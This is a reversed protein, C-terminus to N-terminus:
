CSGCVEHSYRLPNTAHNDLVFYRPQWTIGRVFVKTFGRPKKLLVGKYGESSDPYGDVRKRCEDVLMEHPTKPEQARLRSRGAKPARVCVGPRVHAAHRM